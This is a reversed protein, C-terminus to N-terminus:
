INRIKALKLFGLLCTFGDELLHLLLGVHVGLDKLVHRPLAGYLGHVELYRIEPLLQIFDSKLVSPLCIPNLSQHSLIVLNLFITFICLVIKLHNLLTKTWLHVTFLYELSSLSCTSAPAEKEKTM